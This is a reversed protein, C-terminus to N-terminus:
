FHFVSPDDSLHNTFENEFLCRWVYCYSSWPGVIETDIFLKPTEVSRLSEQSRRVVGQFENVGNDCSFYLLRHEYINELMEYSKSEIPIEDLLGVNRFLEVEAKQIALSRNKHAAFGYCARRSKKCTTSLIIFNIKQSWPTTVEIVQIDHHESKIEVTQSYLKGNWWNVLAWREMAEYLANERAVYNNYGPFAAMGTTTPEVDFGYKRKRIGTLSEEFAWRELAESIAKYQAIYRFRDSGTGHFKGYIRNKIEIECIEKSVSAYSEYGNVESGIKKSKSYLTCIPGGRASLVNAYKLAAINLM